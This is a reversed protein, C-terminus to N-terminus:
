PKGAGPPQLIVWTGRRPDLYQRAAQLVDRATLRDV